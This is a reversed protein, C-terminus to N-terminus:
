KKQMGVFSIYYDSLIDFEGSNVDDMYKDLEMVLVDGDAYKGTYKEITEYLDDISNFNLNFISNCFDSGASFDVSVLVVYNVM